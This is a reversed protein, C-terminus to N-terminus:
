MEGTFVTMDLKTM